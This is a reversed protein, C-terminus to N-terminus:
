TTVVPPFDCVPFKRQSSSCMRRRWIVGMSHLFTCLMIRCPSHILAVSHTSSSWTTLPGPGHQLHVLVMNHTSSSWTPGHQSHVLVMNSWTTLPCPGHQSHVLVMNHTSSSMTLPRPGHQSHVLVNHTSSSMTFLSCAKGGIAYEPKSPHRDVTVPSYGVDLSSVKNSGKAVVISTNTLLVVNGDEDGHFDTPDLGDLILCEPSFSLLGCALRNTLIYVGPCTNM